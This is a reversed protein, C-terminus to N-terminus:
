RRESKIDGLRGTVVMTFEHECCNCTMASRVYFTEDEFNIECDKDDFVYIDESNCKPCRYEDM